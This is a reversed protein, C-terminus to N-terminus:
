ADENEPFFEEEELIEPAPPTFTGDSYTWGIGVKVPSGAWEGGLRDVAWEPSGVIVQVVQGQEVRAAYM